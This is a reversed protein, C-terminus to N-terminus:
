GIPSAESALREIAEDTMRYPLWETMHAMGLRHYFERTPNWDLVSLDIRPADREVALQALAALLARGLGRGRAPEEVFLDELYLSARGEWTSYHAFFLAFGVPVGDLEAILVEFLPRAGFGDRLVDAETLRV